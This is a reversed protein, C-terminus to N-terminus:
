FSEYAERVSDRLLVVFTFVGLVTGFPFQLCNIGAVLLSFTRYKRRQILLGSLLNAAGTAALLLGFFVYFWKFMALLKPPPPGSKQGKWMEPDAFFSHMFSYHLVLFGIGVLSLGALVYHFISLLRLHDADAKRLARLPPPLEAM